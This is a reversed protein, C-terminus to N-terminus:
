ACPSSETPLTVDAVPQVTPTVFVQPETHQVIKGFLFEVTKSEGPALRVAHVGVPRNEHIYPAFDSPQGDVKATEIQAQVPGYAIVNTQVSGPPVGYHGGGTVYSPLSSAADVPARNTTTVRVTVEEYGDRPCEKVLQVTREMHYDMKAGTGDNFYVGFQAPSLRSGVISGSLPYGALVSQEDPRAAWVLVRGESSGRGIEGILKKADGKGSSLAAFVERAVRAFYADQLEPREIKAYVDSLLTPVVNKSTLEQPLETAALASGDTEGLSVPGTAELLYSLVVPDISIVGDVRQGTKREWMAQATSAATPFDPTLNVDQMYKGLRSSYIQQQESDTPIVPSMIGVDVASSQQGLSLKGNEMTVIALAGPIGGSARAEANNQVVLLYSRTGDAGLMAPALGSADAAVNLADSVEQLQELAAELPHAVEPMLSSSDILSLKDFSARVAYASSKVSSSASKLFKLEDGSSSSTPILTEWNLSGFVNALPTLGLTTVDHASRSVEAIASLNQGLWPIGSALTWLPDGAADKARETHDRMSKVTAQAADGNSSSIDAKLQPVLEIAATLEKDISKAKLGLWLSCAGFIAIVIFTPLLVKIALRHHKKRRGSKDM